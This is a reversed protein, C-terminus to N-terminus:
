RFGLSEKGLFLFSLRRFGVKSANKTKTKTCVIVTIVIVTDCNPNIKLYIRKKCRMDIYEKGKHM